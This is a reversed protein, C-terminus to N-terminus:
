FVIKSKKLKSTSHEPKASQSLVGKSIIELDNHLFELLDLFRITINISDTIKIRNSEQPLANNAQIRRYLSADFDALEIILFPSWANTPRLEDWKSEFDELSTGTLWAFSDAGELNEDSNRLRNVTDVHLFGSGYLAPVMQASQIKNTNRFQNFKRLISLESNFRQKVIKDLDHLEHRLIKLAVQVPYEDTASIAKFVRAYGGRADIDIRSIQGFIDNLSAQTIM